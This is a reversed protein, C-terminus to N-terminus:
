TARSKLVAQMPCWDCQSVNAAGVFVLGGALGRREKEITLLRLRKRVSPLAIKVHRVRRVPRRRSKKLVARKRRSTSPKGMRPFSVGPARSGCRAPWRPGQPRATGADREHCKTAPKRQRTTAVKGSGGGGAGLM